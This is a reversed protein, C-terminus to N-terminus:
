PTQKRARPLLAVLEDRSGTGTKAMAKYVHSEVTRVSLFLRDAVARTSLGDGLLMVIERERDTLPLPEVARCLAPTRAGGCQQALAEARSASVLSSGRLGCRRYAIAAYAAADVAAVREEMQEYEDAVAMLADGDRDRLAVAFRAAVGARPGEVLTALEELRAAGSTDGFQVATQLCMLEPAFQAAARASRAATLALTSAESLAGQCAAVWAKAICYGYDLYRWSPYRRLTLTELAAAAEATAGRMALAVTRPLLYQYGFGNTDGSAFFVDVVPQLVDCATRLRGAALNARGLLASSLLNAPGGPLDASQRVLDETADVADRIRGSLLLAGVYADALVFRMQAADFAARAITYGTEGVNMARTTRGNDGYAVTMAWATVAGVVAPLRELELGESAKRAEEPTGMAALHVVRFADICGRAEPPAVRSADEIVCRARVPDAMACLINASRLFAVRSRAPATLGDSPIATLVEDAERGRGLWSLAHARALYAELGGGARIAADALRDALPLDALWVAGQAAVLLLDPDPQLDSELSLAARHVVVRMEDCRSSSALERAVLSRLRRLKTPPARNRRVEGYLPHALRVEVRGDFSELTILGLTDAGEVAAPDTITQLSSLELPEAIALVDIVEAVAGPLAGMRSEILEMLDVPVVPEGKWHWYRHEHVIRGESLGQEVIHHLYLVNGRTLQWLREAADPDMPGGLRTSLLTSTESRSFPQLALWEFDAGHWIEQVSGPIPEGDRLTLVVKAADRQVLQHVVFASLDDLHQVDDVCLVVQDNVSSVSTLSDIVGRVLQVTETLGPELWEAFAGLPVSRASATGVAWRTECGRSAAIALSERAIRSKGVGAAGSVIVGSGGPTAMAEGIREIEGSRGILPWRMAVSCAYIECFTSYV